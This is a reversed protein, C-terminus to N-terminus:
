KKCCTISSSGQIEPRLRNELLLLLHVCVAFSLHRVPPDSHYDERRRLQHPRGVARLDRQRHEHKPCGDRDHVDARRDLRVGNRRVDSSKERRAVYLVRFENLQRRRDARRRM